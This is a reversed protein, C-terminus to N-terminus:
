FVYPDSIGFNKLIMIEASEMSDRSDDDDHDFGILHLVGHVFMHVARNSFTKCFRGSERQITNYSMVIDGLLVIEDKELSDLNNLEEATYQPFSLVNTPVDKNRHVKNIEKINLDDTLVVDILFKTNCFHSLCSKVAFDCVDSLFEKLEDFSNDSTWKEEQIFLNISM